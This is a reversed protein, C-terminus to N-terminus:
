YIRYLNQKLPCPNSPPTMLCKKKSSILVRVSLQRSDVWFMFQFLCISFVSIIREWELLRYEAPLAVFTLALLQCEGFM